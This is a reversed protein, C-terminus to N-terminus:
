QDSYSFLISIIENCVINFALNLKESHIIQQPVFTVGKIENINMFECFHFAQCCIILKNQM